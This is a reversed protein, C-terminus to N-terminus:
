LIVLKEIKEAKKNTISSRVTLKYVYVGKGIRDGFDDKGDWQIERCLFGDTAVSQNITKVVKGTITMIQVQVDLPEFPHNHSFWFETYSVFPNPYNLVNSLSMDEDGMVVFQIDAMAFNNYVDWVKLTLAHLGKALNRFPFRIVGHTYDNPQTEFYDNLIYPKTEDGDLIAVIDHGIGSATNIGNEDSLFALLIPSANTIGGSVFTEDNMYLRIKPPQNDTPANLNIDGIRIDRSYGTHDELPQTNKAYFSVKGNGVPMMIDKPVIFGFEFQGNVVAANGRFVTEGLTEFPMIYLQNGVFTGDNGLTRRQINKDFIQVALDGKYNALLNGSEDVVEGSLKVYSLAKLIDTSQAIPVDNIKTLRVEPKPIALKLAPDGVYFVVNRDRSTQANKTLRLAESITTYNTTNAPFLKSFLERNIVEGPGKGIERTTTVLAIAGGARNWYMYEGGTPRYPNDFRTFECTITVFLPYRYRNKLNQADVKEFLREQALGDEGGHGFYSAVLAGSEIENLFDAKATPYQEGGSTTVQLYADSHIKKANLFPKWSVVDDALGDLDLELTYDQTGYEADDSLFVVNNRWRGYSKEDHYEIVKNVMEDAQAVSSVLMRGVALDLGLATQMTGENDGMLVYFDDSMFTSYNSFNESSGGSSSPSVPFVSQFVPVVNTNNFIVNKYDFSTDGFLNVYKFSHSSFLGSNDYIYKILNRIAGIDQKGSSFEQYILPLEVVKVNLQSYNRHFEALREAQPKLFSPTVILYDLGENVGLNNKFITGKLDQNAIRTNSLTPPVYVDAMDLAVYRRESGMPAKFSYNSQGSTDLKEVNYIDTVDWVQSIGNASSFQYEAVGINTPVLDNKFFFQRGYGQLSRKAVVTINDLYGNSSPVGGNVFDLGISINPSTATYTGIFVNEYASVHVIASLPTFSMSGLEQGNAKVKFSTANYSASIANVKVKVPVSTVINPFTFGFSQSNEFNFAEGVWKRGLRGVNIKDIEHYQYDDFDTFVRDPAATPQTLAAMRKGNGGQVTVYYYSKSDYLNVSTYSDTNWVDVGEAYFLVYDGDNFVGDSEGVVQIANEELDKPYYVSNQLPIMRGGNGYIKIRRPDINTDLGLRQLFAKDLRYVGSKEVYFRYWDGTALVSNTLTFRASSDKVSDAKYSYRFTFSKVKRVVGGENIIPSFTILGSYVDRAISYNLSAKISNPLNDFSLDKLDNKSITEYVINSIELSKEDVVGQAPFLKKFMVTKTAPNFELNRVNFQPILYAISDIYYNTAPKWDVVVEERQQAMCFFSFFFIIVQLQKKM